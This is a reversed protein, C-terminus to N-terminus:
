CGGLPSLVIKEIAADCEKVDVPKVRYRVDEPKSLSISPVLEDSEPEDASMRNEFLPFYYGETVAFQASRNDPHRLLNFSGGDCEIMCHLAGAPRGECGATNGWYTGAHKGVVEAATWQFKGGDDYQENKISVKVYIENLLQGPHRSMHSDSYVRKFCTPAKETPVITPAAYSAFGFCLGLILLITYM